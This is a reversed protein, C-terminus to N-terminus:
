LRCCSRNGALRRLQKRGCFTKRLMARFRCTKDRGCSVWSIVRRHCTATGTTGSTASICRTFFFSVYFYVFLTLFNFTFEGSYGCRQGGESRGLITKELPMVTAKVGTRLKWNHKVRGGLWLAYEQRALSCTSTSMNRRCVLQREGVSSASRLTPCHGHSRCLDWM